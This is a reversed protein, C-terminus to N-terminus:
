QIKIQRVPRYNGCYSAETMFKKWVVTNNNMQDKYGRRDAALYFGSEPVATGDIYVQGNQGNTQSWINCNTNYGSGSVQKTSPDDYGAAPIFICNGTYLSTVIYGRIYTNADDYNTSYGNNYSGNTTGGYKRFITWTQECNDSTTNKGVTPAIYDFANDEDEPIFGKSPQSTTVKTMGWASNSSDYTSKYYNVNTVQNNVKHTYTGQPCLFDIHEKDPITIGSPWNNSDYWYTNNQGAAYGKFPYRKGDRTPTLPMWSYDYNATAWLVKQGTKNDSGTRQGMWVYEGVISGNVNEGYRWKPLKINNVSGPQLKYTNQPFQIDMTGWGASKISFQLKGLDLNTIPPLLLSVKLTKRAAIRVFKTYHYSGDNGTIDRPFIFKIIHAEKTQSSPKDEIAGPQTTNGNETTTSGTNIKYKFTVRQAMPDVGENIYIEKDFYDYDSPLKLWISSMYIDQNDLGPIELQLTTMIPKFHMQVDTASGQAKTAAVLYNQDLNCLMAKDSSSGTCINELDVGSVTTTKKTKDADTVTADYHQYTQGDPLLMQTMDYLCSVIGNARDTANEMYVHGPKTTKIDGEDQGQYWPQGYISTVFTNTNGTTAGYFQHWGKGAADEFGQGWYLESDSKVDSSSGDSKVEYIAENKPQLAKGNTTQECWIKIKDGANWYLQPNNYVDTSNYHIRSGDESGQSCSFKIGKTQTEENNNIPDVIDESCSTFTGAITLSALYLAYKKM